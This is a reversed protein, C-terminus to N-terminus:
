VDHLQVAVLTINDRGGADLSSCVLHRVRAELDAPTDLISAMTEESVQNHLGDTSLVLLDGAAVKVEGTEPEEMASGLAQDLLNRSYHGPVEERTIEGEELLFRALNQERTIQILQRNRWISLRSDGVHVWHAVNNRLLICLLTTGMGELEHKEEALKLIIRDTEVALHNLTAQEKGVPVSQINALRGRVIEAAYDGAVHGGLGDAVAVLLSQDDLIKILYRDENEKRVLGIHSTAVIDVTDLHINTDAEEVQVRKYFGCERCSDKKEAFTGQVTGGCFTGAALWCSRGANEGRNLGDFTDDYSAPCVGKDQVRNGGPERGCRM